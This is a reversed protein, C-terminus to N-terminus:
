AKSIIKLIGENIQHATSQLNLLKAKVGEIGGDLAFKVAAGLKDAGPYDLSYKLDKLGSANQFEHLKAKLENYKTTMRTLEQETYGHSNKVAVEIRDEIESPHILGESARRVLECVFDKRLIEPTLKPAPKLYNIHSPSGNKKRKVHMWGWTTPIEEISAVGEEDTLLFWEDCYQFVKDAKEPAKLEKLWDGRDSKREIGIIKLGRSRWFSVIVFDARRGGGITHNVESLISFQGKPYKATLMDLISFEQSM